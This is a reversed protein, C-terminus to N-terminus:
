SAEALVSDLTPQLAALVRPATLTRMGEPTIGAQAARASDANSLVFDTAQLHIQHAGYTGVLKPRTPGYLAVTPLDLAACLHGLGTDVSVAAVSRSLVAAIGTLNLRPMLLARPSSDAIREARQREEDSGWPLVVAFGQDGVKKCLECWYEVPWCKDARSTGHLFVVQRDRHGTSNFRRIDLAYDGTEAPLSYQLAQAFLQRTREVAHMDRPVPYRHRYTLAALRERASRSDLGAVPARVMLGVWASKVLGQADIVLDYHPKKLTQRFDKWEPSRLAQLPAQRWRRLAIPIVQDVASHWGPVEAFNEEVVWDFSINDRAARADTIAPLTHILDGLSSMKVILVRM